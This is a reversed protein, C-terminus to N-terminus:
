VLLVVTRIHRLEDPPREPDSTASAVVMPGPVDDWLEVFAPNVFSPVALDGVACTTAKTVQQDSPVPTDQCSRPSTTDADSGDSDDACGTLCEGLSNRECRWEVRSGGHADQCVVLGGMLASNSMGFWILVLWAVLPQFRSQM